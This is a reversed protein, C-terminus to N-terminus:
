IVAEVGQVDDASIMGAESTQEIGALGIHELAVLVVHSPSMYAITERASVVSSVVVIGETRHAAFLQLARREAVPDHFGNALLVSYGQAAAEQEVAMVIQSHM